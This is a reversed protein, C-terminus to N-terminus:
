PRRAPWERNWCGGIFFETPVAYGPIIRNLQEQSAGLHDRIIKGLVSRYDVARKLYRKSAGFMSGDEGPAWPVTDNPSAGFVGSPNGKNYGKVGGGAVFMVGAEAHDTGADSNEVTTRGFESLTIVTLDNWTAKDAYKTFYKKLAYVAWGISRQLNAHSGTVNGQNSHTDFGGFETGAIIADTKNLVIAASKLNNFFGYSGTSVVYKQANNGHLAYGGNTANSNPFLNYPATDGDTNVDDTFAESFNIGAFIEMTQQMNNYQLNLLDRNKKWPFELPAGSRLAQDAKFKGPTTNPVGLLDYRSPDSLNTM